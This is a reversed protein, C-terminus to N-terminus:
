LKGMEERMKSFVKDMMISNVIEWDQDSMSKTDALADLCDEGIIDGIMNAAAVMEGHRRVDRLMKFIVQPSLTKPMFFDVGDITFLLERGERAADERIKDRQATKFDKFIDRPINTENQTTPEYVPFGPGAAPAAPASNEPLTLSM